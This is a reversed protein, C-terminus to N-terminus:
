AHGGLVIIGERFSRFYHDGSVARDLEDSFALRQVLYQLILHHRCKQFPQRLSRQKALGPAVGQTDAKLNKLAFVGLRLSALFQRPLQSAEDCHPPQPARAALKGRVLPEITQVTAVLADSGRRRSPADRSGKRRQTKANFSAASLGFPTSRDHGPRMMGAFDPQRSSVFM